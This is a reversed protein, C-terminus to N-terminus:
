SVAAGPKRPEEHSQLLPDHQGVRNAPQEDADAQWAEVFAVLDKTLVFRRGGVRISRIRRGSVGDACWRRLTSLAPTGPLQHRAEQLSLWEQSM